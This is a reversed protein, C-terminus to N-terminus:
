IKKLKRALEETQVLLKDVVDLGKDWFDEQTIDIGVKKFINKPSDSTGASLIEKVESIFQPDEKVSKQLSKAILLGSAYSYVYFFRRIHSWYIWWNQTGDSQRVFEGMYASMNKQFIEGIQEKSLHGINRFEQHLDWEFNYCAIQRHITSILDNLKSMLISLKMEDDAKKLLEDLVFDETFTSAVEATSVPTDFNLSNQKKRMLENNIGHGVEHALTVVDRLQDTHNLLIYTSNTLRDGACFAGGGKGKKPFVDVLGDSLFKKFINSFEPDLDSFVKNVLEVAESFEYKKDVEGYEINRDNYDLKDVGLLKAKLEYYKHAQDFRKTVAKVLTDVVETDIDDAVHRGLDPREMKRLEDNVKKNELVSNIEATAVDEFKYFIENIVNFAFDRVKKNKSNTLSLIQNFSKMKTTGDEDIVEREEKSLFEEVMQIWNSYSVKAKLNLIKEEPESLLFRAENFSTELFHKYDKLEVAELFINQKDKPIKSVRIEFFQIDNQVKVIYDHIKNYRAKIEPVDQELYLRLGLYYGEDGQIGYNRGWEEYEDLAERLVKPDELYDTRDKWKNIFEYTKKEHEARKKNALDPDDDNWLSSFDWQTNFNNSMLLNQLLILKNIICSYYYSSFFNIKIM